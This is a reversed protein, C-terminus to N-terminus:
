VILTTTYQYRRFASAHIVSNMSIVMRKKLQQVTEKKLMNNNVRKIYSCNQSLLIRSKALFNGDAQM